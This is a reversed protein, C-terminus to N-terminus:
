RLSRAYNARRSSITQGARQRDATRRPVVRLVDRSILILHGPDAFRVIEPSHSTIMIQKLRSADELYEVLRSMLSPHLNREVEEIIVLPKREFYLIVILAIVDITGDSLFAAPMAQKSFRERLYFFLSGDGLRETDLGEVFPLADKLFNMLKRRGEADSLIKDLVIALNYADPELESKGSFLPTKPKKSDIDYRAISNLGNLWPPLYQILLIPNRIDDSASPPFLRSLAAGFEGKRGETQYQNQVRKITFVDPGSASGSELRLEDDIVAIQRGGQVGLSFRYTFGTVVIPLSELLLPTNQEGTVEVTLNEGEECNVNWLYPVGGQISIANELGEKVIDRIFTFLQVFNSKGSANAGILVNLNDLRIDLDKFSKFNKARISTLRM